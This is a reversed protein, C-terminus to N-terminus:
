GRDNRGFRCVFGFVELTSYAIGGGRGRLRLVGNSGDQTPDYAPYQAILDPAATPTSGCRDNTRYTPSYGAISYAGRQGGRRFASGDRFGLLDDDAVVDDIVEGPLTAM